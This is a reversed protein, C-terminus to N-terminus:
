TIKGVITSVAERCAADDFPPGRLILWGEGFTASFKGTEGTNPVIKRRLAGTMGDYVVAINPFTVEHEVTTM